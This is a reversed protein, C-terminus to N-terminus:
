ANQLKVWNGAHTFYLAGESHVDAVKGHHDSASPLDALSAYLPQLTNSELQAIRDLAEQLAKTLLPILKTQDVGQYVPRTGSPTWSRTRAVMTAVGDTEVEETYTLEEASPETVETELVTGDYDALTGIAETGDKVGSVALPAVGQLEHAVFGIVNPVGNKTYTKPQLAKVANIATAGHLDVIDTKLRYDSLDEFQCGAATISIQGQETGGLFYKQISGGVDDTRYIYLCTGAAATFYRRGAGNIIASVDTGAVADRDILGGSLNVAGNGRITGKFYNPANGAAYFNYATGGNGAPKVDSYFGYATTNTGATIGSQTLGFSAEYGIVEANNPLTPTANSIIDTKFFTLKQDTTYQHVLQSYMGVTGTWQNLLGINNSQKARDVPAFIVLSDSGTSNVSLGDDSAIRVKTRFLAEDEADVVLTKDSSIYFDKKNSDDSVSKIINTGESQIQIGQTRGINRWIDLNGGAFEGKGNALLSINTKDGLAFTDTFNAAQFHSPYELEGSDILAQDEASQQDHWWQRAFSGDGPTSVNAPIALTGAALQEQREETLTSKWLEFTSRATTGGIYTSGKFFSPADASAFFNYNNHGSTLGTSYFGYNATSGDNSGGASYFNYNNAGHRVGQSVFGYYNQVNLNQSNNSNTAVFHSVHTTTDSGLSFQSQIGVIGASPSSQNTVLSADVTSFTAFTLRSEPSSSNSITVHKRPNLFQSVWIGDVADNYYIDITNGDGNLDIGGGTVSIGAEHTTVKEFTIEGEATDDNVRSLFIDSATEGGGSGWAGADANYVWTTGNATYTDGTELPGTGPPTLETRDQPFNLQAM